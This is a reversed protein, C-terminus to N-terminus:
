IWRHLDKVKFELPDLKGGVEHGGVDGARFDELFGTFASFHCEDAAGNEGVHDKGVFDIAGRGLGLGREQFRHLFMLDGGSTDAM